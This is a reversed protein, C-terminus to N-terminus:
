IVYAFSTMAVMTETAVVSTSPMEPMAPEPAMEPMRAMGVSMSMLHSMKLKRMNEDPEIGYLAFEDAFVDVFREDPSILGETCALGFGTCTYSKGLSHNTHPKGAGYPQLYTECFVKGHREMVIGHIENETADLLRLCEEVASSILGIEEPSCVGQIQDHSNEKM